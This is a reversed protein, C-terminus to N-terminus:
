RGNIKSLVAFSGSTSSVFLSFVSSEGSLVSVFVALGVSASSLLDTIGVRAM